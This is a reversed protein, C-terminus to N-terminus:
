FDWRARLVGTWLDLDQRLLSNYNLEASGVFNGIYHEYGVALVGGYRDYRSMEGNGKLVAKATLFDWEGMVKIYPIGNELAYGIKSGFSLRGSKSISPAVSVDGTETYGHQYERSLQVGGTPQFRWDGVAYSGTLNAGGFLRKADYNGTVARNTRDVGYRLWGYGVSMDFTWEPSLTIGFYPALSVGAGKFHGNNYATVINTDEVSVALGGITDESLRHDLGAVASYINGHMKLGPETKSMRTGTAQIWLGTDAGADGGARGSRRTSAFPISPTNSDAVAVSGDPAFAGGGPLGSGGTGGGPSFGGGSGGGSGTGGGSGGSPAGGGSPAFGGGSGGGSPAFGGGGSAKPAFGGGGGGSIGRLAGSVAGSIISATQGSAVPAVAATVAQASTSGSNSADSAAWAPSM